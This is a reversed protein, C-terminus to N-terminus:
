SLDLRLVVSNEDADAPFPWTKQQHMAKRTGTKHPPIHSGPQSITIRHDANIEPAVSM